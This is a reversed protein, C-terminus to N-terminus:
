CFYGLCYSDPTALFQSLLTAWTSTLLLLECTQTKYIRCNLFLLLVVVFRLHLRARHPVFGLDNFECIRWNRQRPFRWRQGVVGHLSWDRVGKLLPHGWVKLPGAEFCVKDFRLQLHCLEVAVLVHVEAHFCCIFVACTFRGHRDKNSAPFTLWVFTESRQQQLWTTINMPQTGTTM